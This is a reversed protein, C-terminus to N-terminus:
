MLPETFFKVRPFSISAVIVRIKASESSGESPRAIKRIKSPTQVVMKVTMNAFNERTHMCAIRLEETLEMLIQINLM